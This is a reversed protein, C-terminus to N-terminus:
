TTKKKFSRETYLRSTAIGVYFEQFETFNSLIRTSMDYLIEIERKIRGITRVDIQLNNNLSKLAYNCNEFTSSYVIAFKGSGIRRVDGFQSYDFKRVRELSVELKCLTEGQEANTM